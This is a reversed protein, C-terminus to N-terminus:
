QEHADLMTIHNCNQFLLFKTPLGFAVITHAQLGDYVNMWHMHIHGSRGFVPLLKHYDLKLPVRWWILAMWFSAVLMDCVVFISLITWCRQYPHFALKNPLADTDHCSGFPAHFTLTPTPWTGSGSFTSENNKHKGHCFEFYIQRFTAHSDVPGLSGLRFLFNPNLTRACCCHFPSHVPVINAPSRYAMPLHTAYEFVSSCETRKLWVKSGNSKCPCRAAASQM